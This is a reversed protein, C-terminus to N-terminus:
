STGEKDIQNRRDWEKAYEQVTVGKAELFEMVGDLSPEPKEMGVGGREWTGLLAEKVALERESFMGSQSYDPYHKHSTPDSWPNSVKKFTRRYVPAARLRERKSLAKGVSAMMANLVDDRYQRYPIFEPDNYTNQFANEFGIAIDDASHLFSASTHHLDVLDKLLTRDMGRDSIRAKDNPKSRKIPSPVVSSSPRLSTRASAQHHLWRTAPSSTNLKM